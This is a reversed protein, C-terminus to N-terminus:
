RLNWACFAPKRSLRTSLSRTSQRIRCLLRRTRCLIRLDRLQSRLLAAYWHRFHLSVVPWSHRRLVKTVAPFTRRKRLQADCDEVNEERRDNRKIWEKMCGIHNSIDRLMFRKVYNCLHPTLVISILPWTESKQITQCHQPIQQLKYMTCAM